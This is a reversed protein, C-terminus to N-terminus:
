HIAHTNLLNSHRKSSAHSDADSFTFFGSLSWQEPAARGPGTFRGSVASSDNTQTLDGHGDPESQTNRASTGRPFIALLILAVLAVIAAWKMLWLTSGPWGSRPRPEQKGDSM